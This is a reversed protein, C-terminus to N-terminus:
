EAEPGVEGEKTLRGRWGADGRVRGCRPMSSVSSSPPRRRRARGRRAADLAGRHAARWGAVVLSAVLNANPGEFHAALAERSEDAVERVRARLAPSDEVVKWFGLSIGARTERRKRERLGEDM